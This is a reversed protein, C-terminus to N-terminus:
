NTGETQRRLRSRSWAASIALVVAAYALAALIHGPLHPVVGIEAAHSYFPAGVWSLPLYYINYLLLALLGMATNWALWDLVFPLLVAFVMAAYTKASPRIM